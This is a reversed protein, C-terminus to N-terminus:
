AAATAASATMTPRAGAAPAAVDPLVVAVNVIVAPPSAIVTGALVTASLPAVVAVPALETPPVSPLTVTVSVRPASTAVQVVVNELVVNVVPVAVVSSVTGNALM